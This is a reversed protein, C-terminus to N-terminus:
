VSFEPDAGAALGAGMVVGSWGVGRLVHQEREGAAVACIGAPRSFGAGQISVRNGAPGNVVLLRLEPFLRQESM